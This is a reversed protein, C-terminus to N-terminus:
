KTSVLVIKYNVKVAHVWRKKEVDWRVYGVGEQGILGGEAKNIDIAFSVTIISTLSCHKSQFQASNTAIDISMEVDCMWRRKKVMGVGLCSRRRGLWYGEPRTLLSLSITSSIWPSNVKNQWCFIRNEHKCTIKKHWACVESKVMGMDLCSRKCGLWDEEWKSLLSLALSPHCDFQFM